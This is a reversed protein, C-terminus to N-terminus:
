IKLGRLSVKKNYYERKESRYDNKIV